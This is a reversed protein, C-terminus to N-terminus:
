DPTVALTTRSSAVQKGAQNDVQVTVHEKGGTPGCPPAQIRWTKTLRQRPSLQLTTPPAPDIVPCNNGSGFWIVSVQQTQETCNRLTLKLRTSDGAQVHSPHFAWQTIRVQCTPATAARAASTPVGVVAGILVGVVATGLTLTWRRGIVTAVM